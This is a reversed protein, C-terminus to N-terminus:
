AEPRPFGTYILHFTLLALNCSTDKVISGYSIEPPPLNNSEYWEERMIDAFFALRIAKQLFEEARDYQGCIIAKEAQDFTASLSDQTANELREVQSTM